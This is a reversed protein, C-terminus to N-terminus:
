WSEMILIAVGNSEWSLKILYSAYNSAHISNYVREKTIHPQFSLWILMFVKDVVQYLVYLASDKM